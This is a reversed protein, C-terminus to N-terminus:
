AVDEASWWFEPASNAKILFEAVGWGRQHRLLLQYLFLNIKQQIGVGGALLISDPHLSVVDAM